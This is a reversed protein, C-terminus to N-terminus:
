GTNLSLTPHIVPTLPKQSGTVNQSRNLVEVEQRTLQFMFDPPFRKLNRKVAQNLAKTPVGYLSALDADLIVKEGRIILISHEIHETPILSHKNTM